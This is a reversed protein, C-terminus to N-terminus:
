NFPITYVKGEANIEWIIKQGKAQIHARYGSTDHLLIISDQKCYDNKYDLQSLSLAYKQHKQKFRKQAYYVKRLEWKCWESRPLTFQDTPEYTKNKSFLVYGWTEPRHMNIVGQPSWVWNNEPLYNGTEPKKRKHYKGNSVELSWQVRSFNMKWLDGEVPMKQKGTKLLGSWPLALEVSWHHDKDSPNNLTGDLFVASQMGNLNWSTLAKGHDRYPKTLMLDWVTNLANIEIEYYNHTDGDPDIFVEFDNEHFIISERQKYTAWIDQAELLAAIYLYDNDWTMKIRTQLPPTPKTPGEIDIFDSSFPINKWAPENLKGDIIIPSSAFHCVYKSFDDPTIPTTKLNDKISVINFGVLLIIFIFIRM